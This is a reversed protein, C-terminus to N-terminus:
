KFQRKAVLAAGTIGAQDGLKSATIEIEDATADPFLLNWPRSTVFTFIFGPRRERVVRRVALGATM